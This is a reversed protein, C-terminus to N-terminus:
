RGKSSYVCVSRALSCPMSSASLAEPEQIHSRLNWILQLNYAEACVCVRNTRTIPWMTRCCDRTLQAGGEITAAVHTRQTCACTAVYEAHVTCPPNAKRTHTHTHTHANRQTRAPEMAHLLASWILASQTTMALCVFPATFTLTVCVRAHLGYMCPMTVIARWQRTSSSVMCECAHTSSPGLVASMCRYSRYAVHFVASPHAM